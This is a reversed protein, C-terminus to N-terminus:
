TTPPGARRCSVRTRRLALAQTVEDAARYGTALAGHVTGTDGETNTAEGAFFLTAAVPEGLRRPSEMGGVCVYSYAGRSFPDTSWNHFHTSELLAEIDTLPVRLGRALADLAQGVIAADTQRAIAAARPGGIWGTLLPAVVPYATWWIRFHEDPTFLFSLRSAPPRFIATGEWFAERFRLLVKIAHGMALSTYLARKGPVDPVVRVGGADPAATLVGLPLTIVAARAAVPEYPAGDLAHANVLVDGSSWRIEDVITGLSVWARDAPLGDRLWSVLCDYGGAPRFQRRGNIGAAADETRAIWRISVRDPDAADFGEIYDRIARAAQGARPAREALFSTLSRDEGQWVVIEDLLRGGARERGATPQLRGRRATWTNGGVEYLTLAGAPLAFIEPPRGHVFEAGLDLAVPTGPHHVTAIRGGLRPRAELIAITYGQDTLRRAAALGAVGAGVVVVDVRQM